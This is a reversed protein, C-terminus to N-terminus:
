DWSAPDNAGTPVQQDQRYPYVKVSNIPVFDSTNMDSYFECTSQLMYSGNFLLDNESQWPAPLQGVGGPTIYETNLNLWIYSEDFINTWFASRETEEKGFMFLDVLNDMMTDRELPTLAMVTFQISGTAIAQRLLRDMGQDDVAAVRHGLGINKIESEQYRVYVAPYKERALQFEPGVYIDRFMPDPYNSDFTKRLANSVQSIVAVRHSTM